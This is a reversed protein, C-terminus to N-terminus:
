KHKSKVLEFIIGMSYCDILSESTKTKISPCVFFNDLACGSCGDQRKKVRYLTGHIMCFQGPKLPKM